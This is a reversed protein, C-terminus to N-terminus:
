PNLSEILQDWLEIYERWGMGWWFVSYNKLPPFECASELIQM